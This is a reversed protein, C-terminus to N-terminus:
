LSLGKNVTTTTLIVSFLERLSLVLEFSFILDDVDKCSNTPVEFASEVEIYASALLSSENLSMVDLNELLNDGWFPVLIQDQHLVIISRM